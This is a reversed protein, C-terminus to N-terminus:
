GNRRRRTTLDIRKELGICDWDWDMGTWDDLGNKKKKSRSSKERGNKVEGGERRKKKGEAGRGDSGLSQIQIREEGDWRRGDV